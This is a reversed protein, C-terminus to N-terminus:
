ELLKEVEVRVDRGSLESACVAIMHPNDWKFYSKIEERNHSYMECQKLLEERM